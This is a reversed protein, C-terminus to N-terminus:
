DVKVPLRPQDAKDKVECWPCVPVGRAWLVACKECRWGTAVTGVGRMERKVSAKPQDM